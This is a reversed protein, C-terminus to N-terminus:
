RDSKMFRTVTQYLQMFGAISGIVIGVVVMWETHFHRDLLSGFFWGVLCGAPISLALQVMQEAKIYDKMSSFKKAPINPGEDM